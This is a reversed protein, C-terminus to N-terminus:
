MEVQFAHVQNCMIQMATRVLRHLACMHLLLVLSTYGCTISNASSPAQSHQPADIYLPRTYACLYIFAQKQVLKQMELGLCLLVM